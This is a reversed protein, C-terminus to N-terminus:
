KNYVFRHCHECEILNGGSLTSQQSLSFDMGCKCSGGTLPVFVPIIKEAIKAKYKDLVDAPIEKALQAMKKKLADKEAARVSRIAEYKAQYEKGQKKMAERKETFSSYGELTKKIDGQLEEMKAKLASLKKKLERLAKEYYSLDGGGEVMDELDAYEEIESTIEANQRNLEEVLATLEKSRKEFQEQKEPAGKVFRYAQAYKKFEETSKEEEEIERLKDDEAQYELLKDLNM